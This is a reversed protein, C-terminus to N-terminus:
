KSIRNLNTELELNKHVLNAFIQQVNIVQRNRTNELAEKCESQFAHKNKLKKKAKNQQPSASGDM